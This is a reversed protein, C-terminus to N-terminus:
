LENFVNDVETMAWPLGQLIVYVLLYSLFSKKATGFDGQVTQNITDLAGKVIIVWKGFGLLKKYINGAKEDLTNASVEMAVSPDILSFAIITCIVGGIIIVKTRKRINEQRDLEKFDTVMFEKISMTQVRAM